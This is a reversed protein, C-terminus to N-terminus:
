RETLDINWSGEAEIELIFVGSPVIYKGEFPAIENVILDVESEGYGWVLFNSEGESKATLLDADGSLLLVDDSNGQYSGPVNVNNFYDRSIPYIEITWEGEADIELRVTDEKTFDLPRYGEYPSIANAVLDTENGNSDYGYIIFNDRPGTSIIHLLAAGPWKETLEIVDNGSGDFFIPEPLPTPTFTPRPTNTPEPTNTPLAAQTMAAVANHTANADLTAQLIDETTTPMELSSDTSAISKASQTKAVATSVASEFNEQTPTASSCAVLFILLILGWSKKMVSAEM